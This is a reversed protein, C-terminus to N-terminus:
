PQCATSDSESVKDACLFTRSRVFFVVPLFKSSLNPEFKEKKYALAGPAKCSSSSLSSVLLLCCTSSPKTSLSEEGTSNNVGGEGTRLEGRWGEEVDSTLCRLDSAVTVLGLAFWRKALDLEPCRLSCAVAGTEGCLAQLWAGGQVKNGDGTGTVIEGTSDEMEGDISEMTFSVTLSIILAVVNGTKGEVLVVIGM